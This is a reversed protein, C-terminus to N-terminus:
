VGGWFPAGSEPIWEHGQIFREVSFEGAEDLGGLVHFGRWNVRRGTDAGAGTNMYEGYYLTDLAFDGNWEAWGEPHILGDLDTKLFVTRSYRQWPRGLYSNFNGKVAEMEATPRVRCSHVSIGTSQNPDDRGQATVMPRQRPMPKRIFIESNQIVAAANGFIFDVTGYIDCDRYIVSRDSNVRLAVAQEKSPGATNEFTIDRAWFGDGSVGFTASRYTTYGDPVNHNGTVITEDIGDGVFMVNRLNRAIEVYEEYVGSKVYVIARRDGNHERHLAQVAENITRYNGSGDQAVVIDANHTSADWLALLSSNTSTSNWQKAQDNTERHIASM